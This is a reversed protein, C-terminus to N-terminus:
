HRYGAAVEANGAFHAAAQLVVELLSEPNRPVVEVQDLCCRGQRSRQEDDMVLAVFVHGLVLYSFADVLGTVVTMSVLLPPLPGHRGARDPVVTDRIDALFAASM